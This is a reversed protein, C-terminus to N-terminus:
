NVSENGHFAPKRIACLKNTVGITTIGGIQHYLLLLIYKEKIM